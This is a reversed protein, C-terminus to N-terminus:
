RKRGAVLLIVGAVILIGGLVLFNSQQNLLGINHVRTGTDTSVSTDMGLAVVALLGGVVCGIIGLTRMTSAYSSSLASNAPSPFPSVFEGCHKCKRASVLIPESCAPCPVTQNPDVPETAAPLYDGTQVIVRGYRLVTIRRAEVYKRADETLPGSGLEVVAGAPLRRVETKSLATLVITQSM